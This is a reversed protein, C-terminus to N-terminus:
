NGRGAPVDGCRTLWPTAHTTGRVQGDKVVLKGTKIDRNSITRIRTDARRMVLDQEREGNLKIRLAIHGENLQRARLVVYVNPDSHPGLTETFVADGTGSILATRMVNDLRAPENCDIAWVGFFGFRELVERNADAGFAASAVVCLAIAIPCLFKLPVRSVYRIEASDIKPRDAPVALL